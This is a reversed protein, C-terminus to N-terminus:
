YIVQTHFNMTRSAIINFYKNVLTILCQAFIIIRYLGMYLLKHSNFDRAMSSYRRSLKLMDYTHILHM